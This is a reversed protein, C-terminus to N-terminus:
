PVMRCVGMLGRSWEDHGTRDWYERAMENMRAWYRVRDKEGFVDRLLGGNLGFTQIHGSKNAPYVPTFPGNSEIM